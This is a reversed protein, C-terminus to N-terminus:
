HSKWDLTLHACVSGLAIHQGLPQNFSGFSETPALRALQSASLTSSANLIRRSYFMGSLLDPPPGGRLAKAARERIAACSLRRSVHRGLADKCWTFSNMKPTFLIRSFTLERGKARRKDCNLALRAIVQLHPAKNIVLIVHNPTLTCLRWM